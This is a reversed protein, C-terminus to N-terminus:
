ESEKAYYRQTMAKGRHGVLLMLEEDTPIQGTKIKKLIELLQIEETYNELTRVSVGLNEANVIQSNSQKNLHNTIFRNRLTHFIPRNKNM